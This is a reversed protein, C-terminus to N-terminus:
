EKFNLQSIAWLELNEDHNLEATRRVVSAFLNARGMDSISSHQREVDAIEQTFSVRMASPILEEVLSTDEFEDIIMQQADNRMVELLSAYTLATKLTLRQKESVPLARGGMEGVLLEVITEGIEDLAETAWVQETLQHAAIVVAGTTEVPDLVRVGHDLSTHLYIQGRKAHPAVREILRELEQGEGEGDLVVLDYKGADEPEIFSVTHGAERLFYGISPAGILGVGLRPASM